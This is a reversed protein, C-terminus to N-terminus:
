SWQALEEFFILGEELYRRCVRSVIADVWVSSSSLSTVMVLVLIVQDGLGVQELVQKLVPVQIQLPHCVLTELAMAM